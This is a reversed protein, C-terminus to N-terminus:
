RGGKEVGAGEVLKFFKPFFDAGRKVWGRFNPLLSPFLSRHNTCVHPLFPKLNVSFFGVAFFVRHKSSFFCLSALGQIKQWNEVKGSKIMSEVQEKTDAFTISTGSIKPAMSSSTMNQKLDVRIQLEISAMKHKFNTM